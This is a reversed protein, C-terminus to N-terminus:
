FPSWFSAPVANSLANFANTPVQPISDVTFPGYIDGFSDAGSSYLDTKPSIYNKLDAFTPNFGSPKETDIAYQDCAADLLRLDDLIRYAAHRQRVSPEIYIRWWAAIAGVTILALVFILPGKGKKKATKRKEEALRATAMTRAEQQTRQQEAALRERKERAKREEELGEHRVIPSPSAQPTEPSLSKLSNSLRLIHNNFDRGSDIPMANRYALEKL